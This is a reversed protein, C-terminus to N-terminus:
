GSLCKALVFARLSKSMKSTCSFYERLIGTVCVTFLFCLFVHCGLKLYPCLSIYTTRWPHSKFQSYDYTQGVTFYMKYKCPSEIYVSLSFIASSM